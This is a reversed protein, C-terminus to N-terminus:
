DRCHTFFQKMKTKHDIVLKDPETKSSQEGKECQLTSGIRRASFTVSLM